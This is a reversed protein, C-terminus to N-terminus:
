RFKLNCLIQPFEKWYVFSHQIRLIKEAGNMEKTQPSFLQTTDYPFAM